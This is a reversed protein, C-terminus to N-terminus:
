PMCAPDTSVINYVLNEILTAMAQNLVPAGQGLVYTGWTAAKAHTNMQFITDVAACAVAYRMVDGGHLADRYFDTATAAGLILGLRAQRDLEAVISGAPIVRVPVTTGAQVQQQIYRMMAKQRTLLMSGTVTLPANWYTQYNAGFDATGAWPEYIYYYRAPNIGSPGSELSTIMTQIAVIESQVTSTCGITTQSGSSAVDVGRYSTNYTGIGGPAGGIQNTVTSLPSLDAGFASLRGNLFVAGALVASVTYVGTTGNIYGTMNGTAGFPEWAFFQRNIRPLETNWQSAAPSVNDVTGPQIVMFALSQSNKEHYSTTLNRLSDAAIQPLQGPVTDFLLSNGVAYFQFIPGGNITTIVRVYGTAAAGAGGNGTLGAGGGSAGAGYAGATGAVGVGTINAAGGARGAGILSFDTTLNGIQGGTGAAFAVGANTGGGAAGGVPGDITVAGAGGAAATQTGGGGGSPQGPYLGNGSGNGPTGGANGFANGAAGVAAGVGAAGGSFTGASGGGGSGANTQGGAGGGGGHAILVNFQSLSGNGGATGATADVTAGAGATATGVTVAETAGLQSASINARKAWGGGGGAGGSVSTGAANRGGGGSGGGSGIVLCEVTTAGPPKTWTGSATFEQIDISSGAALDAYVLAPSTAGSINCLLNGQADFTLGNQVNTM